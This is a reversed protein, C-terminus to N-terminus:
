KSAELIEFSYSWDKKFEDARGDVTEAEFLGGRSVFTAEAMQTITPVYTSIWRRGLEKGFSDAFYTTILLCQGEMVQIDSELHDDVPRCTIHITEPLHDHYHEGDFNPLSINSVLYRCNKFKDQSPLIPFDYIFITDIDFLFDPATYWEPLLEKGFSNM